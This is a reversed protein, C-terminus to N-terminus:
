QETQKNIEDFQKDLKKFEKRLEEQKKPDILITIGYVIYFVLYIVILWSIWIFTYCTKNALWVTFIAYIITILFALASILKNKPALGIVLISYVDLLITIVVLIVIFSAMPCVAFASLM